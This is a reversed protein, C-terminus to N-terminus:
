ACVQWVHARVHACQKNPVKLRNLQELRRQRLETLSIALHLRATTCLDRSCRGARIGTRYQTGTWRSETNREGLPQASRHAGNRDTSPQCRQHLDLWAIPATGDTAAGTSASSARIASFISWARAARYKYCQRTQSPRIPVLSTWEAPPKLAYATNEAPSHELFLNCAVNVVKV